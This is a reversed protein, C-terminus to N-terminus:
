VTRDYMAARAVSRLDRMHQDDLPLALRLHRQLDMGAERPQASRGGPSTTKAVASALLRLGREGVALQMESRTHVTTTMSGRRPRWAQRPTVRLMGASM